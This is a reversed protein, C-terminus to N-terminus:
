CAQPQRIKGGSWLKVLDDYLKVFVKPALVQCRYADDQICHADTGDLGFCNASVHRPGSAYLPTLTTATMSRRGPLIAKISPTKYM